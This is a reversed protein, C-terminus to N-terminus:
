ASEADGKGLLAIMHAGLEATSRAELARALEVNVITTALPRIRTFAETLAPLKDPDPVGDILHPEFVHALALRVFREAMAEAESRIRKLEVLLEDFPVGAAQLELGARLLRPSPVVFQDGDVKILGHELAAISAHSDTPLGYRIAIEGPTGSDAVEDTFPRAIQRGLGILDGLNGGDSWTDLLENINALTFGRDLLSGILQLRQLHDADYLAVRGERHPSPLLGRDQYARVNRVTSGGLRAFDDIRYRVDVPDAPSAPELLDRPDTM